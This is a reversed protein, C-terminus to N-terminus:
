IKKIKNSLTPKRSSKLLTIRTWTKLIKMVTQSKVLYSGPHNTVCHMSLGKEKMIKVLM